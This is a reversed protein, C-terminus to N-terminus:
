DVKCLDGSSASLLFSTHDDKPDITVRGALAADYDDLLPMVMMRDANELLPGKATEVLKFNGGDEDIICAVDSGKGAKCYAAGYLKTKSGKLTVVLAATIAGPEEDGPAPKAYTFAIGTVKQKPHAQMHAADYSRAMCTADAPDLFGVMDKKAALATGAMAVCAVSLAALTKSMM